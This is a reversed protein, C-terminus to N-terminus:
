ELNLWEKIRVAGSLKLVFEEFGDTHTLFIRRISMPKKKVSSYRTPGALLSFAVEIGSSATLKCIDDSFDARGGNPYAFSIVSKSIEEEIKLKSNIIEARAQDLSVRTLIPHSVTHAGFEIGNQSLFRVDNWDLFMKSTEQDMDRVNLIHSLNQVASNKEAETLRKVAEVWELIVRQKEEDSSWNRYGLVPLDAYSRSTHYFCRSVYDWYFSKRGGIYSTALFIVASLSHAKLVPYANKLNDYYGDDFTILAPYQPMTSEGRLCAALYECSIVNFNESVYKMQREFEQPLASVNAKLTDFGDKNPDDIRHYNLVTLSEKLFFSALAPMKLSIARKIFTRYRM